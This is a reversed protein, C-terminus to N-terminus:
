RGGAEHRFFAARDMDRHAAQNAAHKYIDAERDDATTGADHFMLARIEHLDALQAARLRKAKAPHMPLALADVIALNVDNLNEIKSTVNM